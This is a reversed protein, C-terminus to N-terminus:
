NQFFPGLATLRPIDMGFFVTQAYVDQLFKQQAEQTLHATNEVRDTMEAGLGGGTNAAYMGGALVDAPTQLMAAGQASLVGGRKEVLPLLEQMLLVMQETARLSHLMAHYGGEKLAQAAMATIMVFHEWYWSQMDEQYAPIFGASEFLEAVQRHREHSAASEAAELTFSKLLVGQLANGAIGGGAGPFGWVIREAAIPARVSEMSDWLNNFILVIANEGAASITKLAETVQNHNVSVLILDYDAGTPIAELLTTPWREIVAKGRPNEREDLINLEMSSGYQKARGPRVLFQVHHGAHEFAWGYEAAVAGRGIMLINM